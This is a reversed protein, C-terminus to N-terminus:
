RGLLRRVGRRRGTALSLEVERLQVHERDPHRRGAEIGHAMHLQTTM